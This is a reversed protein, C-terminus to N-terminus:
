LVVQVDIKRVKIEIMVNNMENSLETEVYMLQEDRLLWDDHLLDM